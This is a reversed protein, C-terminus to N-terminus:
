REPSSNNFTLNIIDSKNGVQAVVINKKLQSILSYSNIFNVNYSSAFWNEKKLDTIDFPLDHKIGKTHFDNFVYKKDNDLNIIEINNEGILINYSFDSTSDLISKIEIKFPYELIRTTMIEGVEEVFLNLKLNKIVENLISSSRIIEIENELNIKSNSFLDEASPMALNNQKKDLIQIKASTTYVKASYRNFLYAISFCVIISLLFYKWFFFYKFFEQTFDISDEDNQFDNFNSNNNNSNM